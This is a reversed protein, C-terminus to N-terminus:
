DLFAGVMRRPFRSLPRTSAVGGRGIVQLARLWTKNHKSGLKGHEQEDTRREDLKNDQLRRYITGLSISLISLIQAITLDQRM